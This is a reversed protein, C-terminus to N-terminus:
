GAEHIDFGCATLLARRVEPWRDEPLSCLRSGIRDKQALAVNLRQGLDAIKAKQERDRAESAELAANLAALQSRLAAMQRYGEANPHFSAEPRVPPIDDRWGATFGNIWEADLGEAACLNHGEFAASVDVFRAADMGVEETVRRITDNLHDAAKRFERAFPADIRECGGKRINLEPWREPPEFLHPYGLIVIHGGGALIHQGDDKHGTALQTILGYLRQELLDLKMSELLHSWFLGSLKEEVERYTLKFEAIDQASNPPAGVGDRM